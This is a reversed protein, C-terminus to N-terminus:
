EYRLAVMPDLTAAKRAPLGGALLAIACLSAIVAAFVVPDGAKVGFLQSEILRGLAIAIVM